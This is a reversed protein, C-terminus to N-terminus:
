IRVLASSGDTVPRYQQVEGRRKVTIVGDNESDIPLPDGASLYVLRGVRVADITDSLRSRWKAPLDDFRKRELISAAPAPVAPASQKAAPALTGAPEQKENVIAVLIDLAERRTLARTDRYPLSLKHISEHEICRALRGHDAHVQTPAVRLTFPTSAAGKISLTTVARYADMHCLSQTLEPADMRTAAMAADRTSLRFASFNASNSELADRVEQTLQGCHQHALVLGIGFKRAEALMRPLPETQFLHTEDIFILHTRSRDRRQLVADWLQMLLITGAMRAASTGISPAGLDILTVCDTDISDDLDLANVGAGITERLQEVSTLRQFKCVLWSLLEGLDNSKNNVYETNIAQATDPDIPLLAQATKKMIDPSSCLAIISEFNARRGFLGIAAKAFLTFWREWRPGCFGQKNPDFIEGFLECLDAIRREQEQICGSSWLSIPVPHAADAIRVVRIKEAQEPKVSRLVADVTTGHPDFFTLGMGREIASVISKTLLTSKGTGTQGIIQWHRCLDPLTLRITREAGATDEATGIEIHDSKEDDDHIAPLDPVPAPKTLFGPMQMGKAYPDLMMIRAAMEPLIDATELPSTWHREVDQERVDGLPLIRLGRIAEDLVTRLRLDPARELLLQMELRVPTGTYDEATMQARLTKAVQKIIKELHETPASGVTCRLVAEQGRLALLLESLESAYCVPWDTATGSATEGTFGVQSSSQPLLPLALRYLRHCAGDLPMPTVQRAEGTEAIQEAFWTLDDGSVAASGFLDLATPAGPKLHMQWGLHEGPPLHSAAKVMRTSLREFIAPKENIIFKEIPMVTQTNIPYMM